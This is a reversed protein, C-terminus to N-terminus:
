VSFRRLNSVSDPADGAADWIEVHVKATVPANLLAAPVLAVLRTSSASSIALNTDSGNASWVVVSSKHPVGALFNSGTLILNLAPSGATASTPSISSISVGAPSPPPSQALSGGGCGSATMALLVVLAISAFRIM